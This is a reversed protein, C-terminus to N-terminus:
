FPVLDDGGTQEVTVGEGQGAGLVDLVRGAIRVLQDFTLVEIRNLHANFNRLAEQQADGGDRGAIIRARIKLTDCGDKGRISDRDRELEGIYRMVQGVVESLRASPYYSNHSKDHIFLPDQFPTKIEVVELYNDATRRLMFDLNEDRTWKRRELLQSYESGFMWPNEKLLDQFSQEKSHSTTVLESLRANARKLEAIRSAAAIHRVTEPDSAQFAQVLGSYHADSNSLMPIIHKLLEVLDPSALSPLQSVIQRLKEYDESRIVRVDGPGESLQGSLHAQLFRGLSAIEDGELRFSKESKYVWGSKQRDVSDLKLSFHHPKGTAADLIELLAALRFARPGPRLVAQAIKGVGPNSYSQRIRVLVDDISNQPPLSGM